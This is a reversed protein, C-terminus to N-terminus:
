HKKAFDPRKCKGNFHLSYLKRRSVTELYPKIIEVKYFSDMEMGPQAIVQRTGYFDKVEYSVNGQEDSQSTYFGFPHGAVSM